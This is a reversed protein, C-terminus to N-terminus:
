GKKKILAPLRTFLTVDIQNLLWACGLSILLTWVYILLSFRPLLILDQFYYYAFFTHSLWMYTAYKGFLVLLKQRRCSGDKKELLVILSFILFPVLIFDITDYDARTAAMTRVIFIMVLIFAAVPKLPLLERISYLRSFLSFRAFVIGMIFIFIVPSPNYACTALYLRQALEGAPEFFASLSLFAALLLVLVLRIQRPRREKFPYFFLNIFPFFLLLKIYQLVYWWEGSYTTSIGIFNEIFERLHFSRGFFLFGMPIFIVFVLWYKRYFRFLHRIMSRYDSLLKKGMSPCEKGASSLFLGYGSIFAFIAVCLKCFWALTVEINYGFLSPLSIYNNGLREPLCYLHHFVMMLIAVGYMMQSHIKSLGKEM